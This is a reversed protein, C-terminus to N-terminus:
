YCSQVLRGELRWNLIQASAMDRFRSLFIYNVCHHQNNCRTWGLLSYRNNINIPLTSGPVGRQQWAQASKLAGSTSFGRTAQVLRSLARMKGRADQVVVSFHSVREPRDHLNLAHADRPILSYQARRDEKSGARCPHPHPVTVTNDLWEKQEQKGCNEIPLGREGDKMRGSRRMDRRVWDEWRLQPRGRKRRGQHKEVEPRKALKGADMRGMEGPKECIKRNTQM